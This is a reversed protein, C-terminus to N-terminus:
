FSKGINFDVESLNGKDTIKNFVYKPSFILDWASYDLSVALYEGKYNNAEIVTQSKGSIDTFTIDRSPIFNFYGYHGNLKLNPYLKLGLIAGFRTASITASYNVDTMIQYVELGIDFDKLKLGGDVGLNIGLGPGHVIGLHFDGMYPLKEIKMASASSSLLGAVLTATLYYKIRSNM